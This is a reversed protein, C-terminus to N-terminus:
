QRVAADSSRGGVSRLVLGGAFVVLTMGMALFFVDQRKSPDSNPDCPVNARCGSLDRGIPTQAAAVFSGVFMVAALILLSTGAIRVGNDRRHDAKINM